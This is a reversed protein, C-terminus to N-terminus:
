AFHRGALLDYSSSLVNRHIAVGVHAQKQPNERTILPVTREFMCLFERAADVSQVPGTSAM